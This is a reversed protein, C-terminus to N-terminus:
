KKFHEKFYLLGLALMAVWGLVKVEGQLLKQEAEEMSLEVLEM